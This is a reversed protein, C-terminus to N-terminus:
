TSSIMATVKGVQWTSLDSNFRNSSILGNGAGACSEFVTVDYWCFLVYFIHSVDQFIYIGYIGGVTHWRNLRVQKGILSIM